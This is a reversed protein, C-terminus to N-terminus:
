APRRRPSSPRRRPSRRTSSPATWPPSSSARTFGRARRIPLTLIRGAVKSRVDVKDVPALTGTEQVSWASTAPARRSRGPRPLRRRACPRGSACAAPSWRPALLVATIILSKLSKKLPTGHASALRRQSDRAQDSVIEGDKFRVIRGCHEAIDEEHTVLVVTKGQDNLAQFLAM